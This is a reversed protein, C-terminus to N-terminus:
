PRGGHCGRNRKLTVGAGKQFFSYATKGSSNVIADASAILHCKVQDPNLSPNAQLMLALIGSTTAAAQSTGSM